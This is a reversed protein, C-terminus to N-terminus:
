RDRKRLEPHKNIFDEAEEYKEEDILKSLIDQPSMQKSTRAGLKSLFDDATKKENEIKEKLEEINPISNLIEDDVGIYNQEAYMKRSLIEKIVPMLTDSVSNTQDSLAFKGATVVLTIRTKKLEEKLREDWKMKYLNIYYDETMKSPKMYTGIYCYCKYRKERYTKFKSNSRALTDKFFEYFDPYDKIFDELKVSIAIM